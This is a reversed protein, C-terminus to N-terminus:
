YGYWLGERHAPNTLREGININFFDALPAFIEPSNEHVTRAAEVVKDLGTKTMKGVPKRCTGAPIGLVRMLTKLPLPNRARCVVRGYPTDEETKVTVIELLPAIKDYIAKAAAAQGRNLLDIMETLFGPIINAMVSIGGGARIEPDAMITFILPDDGSLITFEEGCCHRTRKMNDLNGTAEKVSSVNACQASLMALDEPFMQAGTRGPIIYPIIDMDPFAKAVTEYYEKRIELSSPGNYYPDVMLVADAGEAAAHAVGLLTERTNNSGAGAICKSKGKVNKAIAAVVQNHEEWHLTPSEGTTGVAVIGTIGNEIQFGILKELGQVDLNGEEDFPTILATYCGKEM